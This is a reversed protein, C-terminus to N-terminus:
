FSLNLLPVIGRRWRRRWRRRRKERM